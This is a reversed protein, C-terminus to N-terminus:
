LYAIRLFETARLNPMREWGLVEWAQAYNRPVSDVSGSSDEIDELTGFRLFDGPKMDRDVYVVARSLQKTNDARIFERQEEDWRCSIEVPEGYAMEGYDNPAIQAWYVARERRMRTIISM